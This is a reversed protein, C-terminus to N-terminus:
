IRSFNHQRDVGLPIRHIQLIKFPDCQAPCEECHEGLGIAKTTVIGTGMIMTRMFIASAGGRLEEGPKLTCIFCEPDVKRTTSFLIKSPELPDHYELRLKRGGMGSPHTGNFARVELVTDLPVQGYLLDSTTM